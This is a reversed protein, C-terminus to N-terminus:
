DAVIVVKRYPEEGESYTSIGSKNQLARHIVKREHAPMPDLMVRRRKKKAKKAMRFALKELTKERRERYGEADVIIRVYESNGKNVALNTLYQLSNLTKGRYGIIIGLEDGTIDLTIRKNTSDKDIVKITLDLEMQEIIEELFNKALETKNLRKIVELKADKKGFLGLFGSKAEELVEYDVDKKGVGLKEVGKTLAKQITEGTVIVREM